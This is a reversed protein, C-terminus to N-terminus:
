ILRVSRYLHTALAGLAILQLTIFAVVGLFPVFLLAFFTATGLIVLPINVVPSKSLLKYIYAGLLVGGFTVSMLILVVYMFLLTAGLLSGLASAILIVSVVPVVFMIGLGILFSRGPYGVGQNVVKSLLKNFMFQWVLAAFLLILFPVLIDKVTPVDVAVPDNKVIKGVVRAQPSRVLENTSIYKVMGSVEARDGLTLALTKVDVDGGVVGDIRISESVGYISKGVNGSITASDGFFLIDGSVSATSLVNLTGSLVVLDGTVEGEITVEGAVVRMDDGVVGSIHASGTIAALDGGTQGNLNIKGAALLLDETVEGSIVVTNAVGYFDGEVAQDVAVNISEGTRMVSSANAFSPVILLSLVLGYVYKSM